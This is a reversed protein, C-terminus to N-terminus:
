KKKKFLDGVSRTAKDVANTAAKSGEGGLYVAGKSLDEIAKAAAKSASAELEKLVTKTLEAPTIGDPGKGLDKLHIDPLPVTASKAGLTTVSVHIKGGQILFDDVELKKGPKAEKPQAPEKKADSAGGMNDIIKSLNNQRLDTEFTIEPAQVQISELVIKDALLSGPKLDLSATGVSIAQPTKFGEPNGVVLGKVKGSGTLLSINVSDLKLQVKMIDPGVVEVAKKVASDLFLHVAIAALIVLVVLAMLIRIIIKKM